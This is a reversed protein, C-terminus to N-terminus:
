MTPTAEPTQKLAGDIVKEHISLRGPEDLEVAGGRVRSYMRSKKARIPGKVLASRKDAEGLL